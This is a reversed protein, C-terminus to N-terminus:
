EGKWGAARPAPTVRVVYTGAIRDHWTQQEPDFLAWFCGVGLAAVSFMKAFARIVADGVSMPEGDTRVVRLNCVMAGVTGQRLTWCVVHYVLFLGVYARLGSLGLLVFTVAVLLLDVAFAAARHMFPARDMLLSPAPVHIAEASPVAAMPSPRSSDNPVAPGSVPPSAVVKAPHERALAAFFALAAAGLGLVGLLAWTALGLLPVMYALVVLVTGIAFSRLAQVGSDPESETLVMGGVWRTVGLKGLLLAILLGCALVPLVPIGVV